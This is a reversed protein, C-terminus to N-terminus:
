KALTEKGSQGNDSSRGYVEGELKRIKCFAQNLDKKMKRAFQIIWTGTGIIIAIIISEYIRDVNIM